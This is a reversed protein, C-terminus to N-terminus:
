RLKSGLATQEGAAGAVLHVPLKQCQSDSVYLPLGKVPVLYGPLLGSVVHALQVHIVATVSNKQWARGTGIGM